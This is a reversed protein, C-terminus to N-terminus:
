IEADTGITIRLFDKTPRPISGASWCASRAGNACGFKPPFNPPRAFIFNAQSPLVNFGLKDLERDIARAHRHDAPFRRRYYPLDSLRPWRRRDPGPRQCQLQRPNEPPRRDVRSASFLRHAPLLALLGQFLGPWLFTRIACAGPGDRKRAAFDVYAEDLVVVGRQARCLKELEATAYGRGSPANPTTIFTLAAAAFDWGGRRSIERRHFPRFDGGCRSRCQPRAGQSTRWCRICPIVPRSSNSPPKRRRCPRPLGKAPEVFARTTLALLEDSGNGVIINEARCRHLTALKDRLANLRPMPISACASM